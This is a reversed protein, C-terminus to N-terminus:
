VQDFIFCKKNVYELLNIMAIYYSYGEGTFGAKWAPEVNIDFRLPGDTQGVNNLYWQKHWIPDNFQQKDEDLLDFLGQLDDFRKERKLLKQQEVHIVNPDDKLVNLIKEASRKSRRKIRPHQFHFVNLPEIRKVIQCGHTLAVLKAVDESDGDVQVAFDNTYVDNNCFTRYQSILLLIWFSLLQLSFM